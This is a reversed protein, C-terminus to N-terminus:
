KARYVSAVNGPVADYFRQGVSHFGQYGHPRHGARRALVEQLLYSQQHYLSLSARSLVTRPYPPRCGCSHLYAELDTIHRTIEAIKSRHYAINTITSAASGVRGEMIRRTGQKAPRVRAVAAM